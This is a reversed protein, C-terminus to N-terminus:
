IETLVKKVPLKIQFFFYILRQKDVFVKILYLTFLTKFDGYKVVNPPVYRPKEKLVTAVLKYFDSLVM